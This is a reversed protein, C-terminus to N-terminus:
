IERLPSPRNGEQDAQQSFYDCISNLPCENCKPYTYRCVLAGLDLLGLNYKRHILPPLLADALFQLLRESPKHGVANRFVRRLVREVNADLVATPRRFAFSLIARASYSGLGPLGQLRELDNPIEGGELILLHRSLAKFARARQKQLGITSLADTLEIESAAMLDHLTPFRKLFNDYIRAVATATTRKLLAEAVLIDYPTRQSERWPYKRGHQGAWNTLRRQFTSRKEKIAEVLTTCSPLKGEGM